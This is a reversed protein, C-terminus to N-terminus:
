SHAALWNEGIGVEVVVPISLPLAKQMEDRIM